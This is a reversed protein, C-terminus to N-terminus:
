ILCSYPRSKFLDTVVFLFSQSFSKFGRGGGVSFNKVLHFRICNICIIEGGLQAGSIQLVMLVELLYGTNWQDLTLALGDGSTM